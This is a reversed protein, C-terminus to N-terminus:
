SFLPDVRRLVTRTQQILDVEGDALEYLHFMVFGDATGREALEVIFADLPAGTKSRLRGDYALAYARVSAPAGRVTDRGSALAAETSDGVLVVVEGGPPEQLILLPYAFNNARKARVCENIALDFLETLEASVQFGDSV